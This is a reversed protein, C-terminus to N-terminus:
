GLEEEVRDIERLVDRVLGRRVFMYRGRTFEYEYIHVFGFKGLRRITRVPHITFIERCGSDDIYTFRYISYCWGSTLAQTATLGCKLCENVYAAKVNDMPYFVNKSKYM